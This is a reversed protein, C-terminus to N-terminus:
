RSYCYILFDLIKSKSPTHRPKRNDLPPLDPTDNVKNRLSELPTVANSVVFARKHTPKESSPLVQHPDIIRSCTDLLPRLYELTAVDYGGERNAIGAMGTMKDNKYFPVGLFAHLPPHGDPLGGRRPDDSPSNAIVPEGTVITAGFLTQLNHFEMGKPANEAYFARTEENWAINTIAHTKLFPRGRFKMYSEEMIPNGDPAIIIEGIFGYESETLELLADLMGDFIIRPEADSLFQTEISSISQLIQNSKLLNGQVQQRELETTARTAFIKLVEEILSIDGLPKSDVICILGLVDGNSAYIPMGAYSEAKMKQFPLIEPFLRQVADSYVCLGQKIVDGCPANVLLYDFNDVIQGRGYVTITKIRDAEPQVLKGVFAYDVRLAKSLYEVLSSFFNAGPPITM